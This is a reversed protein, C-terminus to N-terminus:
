AYAESRISKLLRGVQQRLEVAENTEGGHRYNGNREGKPGGPSKGGHKRCRAKGKMAPCRCSTGARTRALCLPANTMLKPLPPTTANMPDDTRKRVGGTTTTTSM